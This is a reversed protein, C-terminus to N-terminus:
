LNHKMLQQSSFNADEFLEHDNIEENESDNSVDNIITLSHSPSGQPKGPCGAGTGMSVWVWSRPHPNERTGTTPKRLGM